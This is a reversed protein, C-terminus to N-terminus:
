RIKTQKYNSIRAISRITGKTLNFVMRQYREQGKIQRIWIRQLSNDTVNIIGHLISLVLLRLLYTIPENTQIGSEYIIGTEGYVAGHNLHPHNQPSPTTGPHTQNWWASAVWLSGRPHRELVAYRDSAIAYVGYETANLIKILALIFRSNAGAVCRRVLACKFRFAWGVSQNCAIAFLKGKSKVSLLTLWASQFQGLSQRKYLLTTWLRPPECYWAAGALLTGRM